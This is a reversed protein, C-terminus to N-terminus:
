GLRARLEHLDRAQERFMERLQAVEQRCRACAGAPEASLSGFLSRCDTVADTWAGSSGKKWKVLALKCYDHRIGRPPTPPWKVAAPAQRAPFVWYDSTSFSDGSFQVAIGEELEVIEDTIPLAPGGQEWRRLKLHSEDAHSTLDGDLWVMQRRDDV